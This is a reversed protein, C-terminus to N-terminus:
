YPLIKVGEQVQYGSRPPQAHGSDRVVKGGWLEGAKGFRVLAGNVVTDCIGWGEVWWNV